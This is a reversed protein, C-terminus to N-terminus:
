PSLAAELASLDPQFSAPDSPLATLRAGATEAFVKYETFYPKFTIVEDGANCLASLTITLSAEGLINSVNIATGGDAGDAVTQATAGDVSGNFVVVDANAFATGAILLAAVSIYNKM